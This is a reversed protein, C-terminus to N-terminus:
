TGLLGSSKKVRFVRGFSSFQLYNVCLGSHKKIEKLHVVNGGTDFNIKLKQCHLKTVKFITNARLCTSSLCM